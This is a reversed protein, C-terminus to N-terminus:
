NEDVDALRLKLVQILVSTVNKVMYKRGLGTVAKLINVPCKAQNSCSPWEAIRLTHGTTCFNIAPCYAM